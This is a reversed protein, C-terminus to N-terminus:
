YLGKIYAIVSLDSVWEGKDSAIGYNNLLMKETERKRQVFRYTDLRYSRHPDYTQYNALRKTVDKTIGVKVYGPFSPNSICYVFGATDVGGFKLLNLGALKLAYKKNSNTLTNFDGGTLEAYIYAYQLRLSDTVIFPLSTIYERTCLTNITKSIIM